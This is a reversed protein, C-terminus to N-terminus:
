NIAVEIQSAGFSDAQKQYRLDFSDPIQTMSVSDIYQVREQHQREFITVDSASTFNLSTKV